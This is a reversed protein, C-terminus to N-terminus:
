PLPDERIMAWFERATQTATQSFYIRRRFRADWQTANKAIYSAWRGRGYGSDDDVDYVREIAIEPGSKLSIGAAARGDRHVAIAREMAVKFRTAILPDRTLLFGHLHLGTRSKGTRTRTEVVHCYELKDLGQERMKKATARNIRDMPDRSERKWKAELDPRVRVTYSYGGNDLAIQFLLHLKLYEGISEWKPLERPNLETLSGSTHDFDNWVSFPEVNSGMGRLVARRLDADQVLKQLLGQENSIREKISQNLDRVPPKQRRPGSFQGRRYTTLKKSSPM